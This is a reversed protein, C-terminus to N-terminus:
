AIEEAVGPAGTSRRVETWTSANAASDEVAALVRQVRLGEAFSPEPDIDKAIAELLDAAQHCFGHEYGLLHGPPWWAGVYPHEPETVLIRTFGGAAADVTNDFVHLVNMDEFDFAISGESGNLE